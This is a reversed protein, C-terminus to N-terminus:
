EWRYDYSCAVRVFCGTYQDDMQAEAEMDLEHIELNRVTSCPDFYLMSTRQNIQVRKSVRVSLVSHPVLFDDQATCSIWLCGYQHGDGVAVM